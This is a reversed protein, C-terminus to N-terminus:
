RRQGSARRDAARQRVKAEAQHVRRKIREMLRAALPVEPAMIALGAIIALWGPGPLVLMAVGALMVLTGGVIRLVRVCIRYSRTARWRNWAARLPATHKLFRQHAATATWWRHLRLLRLRTKRYANRLRGPRADSNGANAIANEDGANM